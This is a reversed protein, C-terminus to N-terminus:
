AKKADSWRRVFDMQASTEPSFDSERSRASAQFLENTKLLAANGSLGQNQVLFCAVVTGTRGIGGRCHVYVKLGQNLGEDITNLISMMLAPSPIGFDPISLRKHMVDLGIKEAEQKLIPVYDQREGEQTLDVFYTIGCDLYQRL